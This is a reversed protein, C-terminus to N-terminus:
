KELVQRFNPTSTTVVSIFISTGCMIVATIFSAVLIPVTSPMQTATVFIESSLCFSLSAVNMFDNSAAELDNHGSRFHTANSKIFILLLYKCKKSPYTLRRSVSVM